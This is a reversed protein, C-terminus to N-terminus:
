RTHREVVRLVRQLRAGPGILQRRLFEVAAVREASPRSLWHALAPNRASEDEFSTVAFARRDLEFKVAQNYLQYPADVAKEEEDTEMRTLRAKLVRIDREYQSCVPCGDEYVEGTVSDTVILHRTASM